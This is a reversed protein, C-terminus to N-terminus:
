FSRSKFAGAQIRANDFLARKEFTIKRMSAERLQQQIFDAKLFASKHISFKELANIGLAFKSFICQARAHRARCKQLRLEFSVAIGPSKQVAAMENLARQLTFHEAKASEQVDRHNM